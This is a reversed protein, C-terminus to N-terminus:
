KKKSKYKALLDAAQEPTLGALMEDAKELKSKGPVRMGPKWDALEVTVDKDSKLVSRMRGQLAIASASRFNAYVIDDGFLKRAGELDGGFDYELVASKNEKPLSAEVREKAM